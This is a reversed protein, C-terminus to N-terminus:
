RRSIRVAVVIILVILVVNVIAIIWILGSGGLDLGAFGTVGGTSSSEINVVVERTEADNGARAEIEFSQEGAAEPKVNFTFVVERSEGANLNLSDESVDVLTAWSNYGSADISFTASQSMLNTITSRVILEENAVADSDLAATISAIRSGGGSGPNACTVRLPVIKDTDSSERYNGNRYDYASSLRLNYTKTAVGAPVTFEFTLSEDDGQDLDNRIEFFEDLGLEQERLNVRVQDQDEDGINVVNMRLSVTEGCMVQDPSLVIEDFAIFKGEDDERDISIREFLDDSLDSSVASCEVSEGLDDSYVKFKLQYNGDEFDAPVTFEFVATERDGDRLDGLDYEEEDDNEFDLDSVQNNGSSDFLGMEIFVEDVDIDDENEVEVEIRITDLLKWEDDEGQGENNIDVNRISLNGGREGNSCFNASNNNGGTVTQTTGQINLTGDNIRWVGASSNSGYAFWRVTLTEGQAVQINLNHISGDQDSTDPVTGGSVLTTPNAFGSQKSYQIQYNLPGTASRSHIFNLDTITLSKGTQPRITAQLYNDANATTETPWSTARAGSGDFSLSVGSSTVDGAIADQHAATPSGNSVLDWSALTVASVSVSVAVLFVLSITFLSLFKKTAKM